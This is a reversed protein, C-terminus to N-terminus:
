RIDNIQLNGSRLINMNILRDILELSDKTKNFILQKKNM